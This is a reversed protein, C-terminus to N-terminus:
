CPFLRSCMRDLDTGTVSIWQLAEEGYRDMIEFLIALIMGGAGVAPEGIWVLRKEQVKEGLDDGTNAQGDFAM